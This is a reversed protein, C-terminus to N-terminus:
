GKKWTWAGKGSSSNSYEHPEIRVVQVLKFQYKLLDKYKKPKSEPM